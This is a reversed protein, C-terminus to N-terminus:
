KGRESLVCEIAENCCSSWVADADYDLIKRLQDAMNKLEKETVPNNDIGFKEAYWESDADIRMEIDSIDYLNQQKLYAVTLEISDLFDVPNKLMQLAIELAEDQKAIFKDFDSEPEGGNLIGERDIMIREEIIKIAEERTM